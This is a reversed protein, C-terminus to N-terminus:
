LMSKHVKGPPSSAIFFTSSIGGLSSRNRQEHRPGHLVLTQSHEAARTFSSSLRSALGNTRLQDRIGITSPPQLRTGTETSSEAYDHHDPHSDTVRSPPIRLVGYEASPVAPMVLGAKV